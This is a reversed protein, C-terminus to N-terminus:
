IEYPIGEKQSFHNIEGPFSGLAAGSVASLASGRRRGRESSAVKEGGVTGGAGGERAVRELM